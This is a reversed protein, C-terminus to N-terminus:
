FTVENPCLTTTSTILSSILDYHTPHAELKIHSTNKYLPLTPVSMCVPFIGHSHLDHSSADQSHTSLGCKALLGYFSSSLCPVSEGGSDVRGLGYDPCKYGRSSHIFKQKLWPGWGRSDSAQHASTFSIFTCDIYHMQSTSKM